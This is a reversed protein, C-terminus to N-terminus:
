SDFRVMEVIPKNRYVIDDRRTFGVSEWFDNGTKNRAFVVLAVKTGGAGKLASIAADVLARGIGRRRHSPAVATHYIFGRRGDDGAMIAGVMSGDEEEAVFCTDPNRSIFREIGDRSDDTDNLGMGSCSSWLSHLADCDDSRMSRIKM